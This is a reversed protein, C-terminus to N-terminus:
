SSKYLVFSLLGFLVAVLQWGMEGLIGEEAIDGTNLTIKQHGELPSWSPSINALRKKERKESESSIWLMKPPIEEEESEEM